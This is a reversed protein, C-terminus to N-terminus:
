HLSPLPSPRPLVRRSPRTALPAPKESLWLRLIAGDRMEMKVPLFGSVRALTTMEKGKLPGAQQERLAWFDCPFGACGQM